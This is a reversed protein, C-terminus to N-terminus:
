RILYSLGLGPEYTIILYSTYAVRGDRSLRGKELERRSILHSPLDEEDQSDHEQEQSAPGSPYLKGFGDAGEEEEISGTTERDLGETLSLSYSLSLCLFSHCKVGVHVIMKLLDHREKTSSIM